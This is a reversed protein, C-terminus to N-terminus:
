LPNEPTLQAAAAPNAALKSVTQYRALSSYGTWILKAVLMAALLGLVVLLSTRLSRGALPGSVPASM